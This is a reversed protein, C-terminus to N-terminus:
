FEFIQLEFGKSSILAKKITKFQKKKKKVQGLSLAILMNKKKGLHGAKFNEM